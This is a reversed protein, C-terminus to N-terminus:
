LKFSRMKKFFLKTYIQIYVGIVANRVIVFVGFAGSVDESNTFALRNIYKSYISTAFM